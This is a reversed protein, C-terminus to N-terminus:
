PRQGAVARQHPRGTDPDPQAGPIAVRFQLLLRTKVLNDGDAGQPRTELEVKIGPNSAEFDAILQTAIAVTLPTSDVQFTIKVDQAFVPGALTATLGLATVGALLARRTTKLTM